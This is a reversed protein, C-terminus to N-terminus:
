SDPDQIRGMNAVLRNAFGENIRVVERVYVNQIANQTQPDFEFFGRPSIIKAQRIFSALRAKDSTDSRALNLADLIVQGTDYGRVAFHNPISRYRSRYAEVFQRNATSNLNYVWHDCSLAGLAENGVAELVNEDTVEGSVALKISRNLGFQAFQRLFIVADSGSYVAFLAEPRAAAVRTLAASLDLSGLPTFVEGIVQGGAATYSDKFAAIAERGFGYDMALIFVRKSVNNAVWSGFPFHQQWATISTRFLFPSKSAGRTVGNAAANAIILPIRREHVYDRVAYASPTLIIGALLDVRDQEVLKRVKRLAVAPDTEEDERIIQLSRGAVQGGVREFALEMGRTIEQGLRAFPGSYSVVLGIKIPERQQALALGGLLTSGALAAGTKILKRRSIPYM